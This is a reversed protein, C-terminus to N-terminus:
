IKSVHAIYAYCCVNKSIHGGVLFFVIKKYLNEINSYVRVANLQKTMKSTIKRKNRKKMEFIWNVEDDDWTAIKVQILM